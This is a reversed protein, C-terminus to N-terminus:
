RRNIIIEKKTERGGAAQISIAPHPLCLKLTFKDKSDLNPQKSPPDTPHPIIRKGASRLTPLPALLLANQVKEKERAIRNKGFCGLAPVNWGTINNLHPAIPHKGGEAQLLCSKTSKYM